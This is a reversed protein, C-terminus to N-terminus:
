QTAKKWSFDKNLGQQMLTKWAIPDEEWLKIARDITASLEKEKPKEFTFGNRDSVKCSATNIDFVTDALGGTKRVIPISGYRLAIMQTLGCPEFLSPVILMDSGAYIQRSLPENYDLIIKGNTNSAYTSQLDLFLKLISESSTSGLIVCQGGVSLIHKFAHAILFVGKQEVLRAICAILPAKSPSLGLFARLNEKNLKKNKKLLDWKETTFPPHAPFPNTLSSDSEPNWFGEDIGNLIGYLKNQHKKLTEQLGFGEQTKTIERKYSPSVTTVADSYIIGGKLINVLAPNEPDQLKDQSLYEEGRLGVRTLHHPFCKGQHELNHLTLVTKIPKWGLAKYMDQQLLPILATQWDHIHLIDPKLDSKFLFEMCTRSFYFFRDINDPCGYITGRSFLYNPHHPEVLLLNLGDLEASWITNHYCHEGDYSWLDRCYVQLNKLLNHNITDYKPLLIHVTHGERVLEKCLGYLVDGLGGVKAIPALESAIHIIHM